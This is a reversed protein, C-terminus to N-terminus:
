IIRRELIQLLRRAELDRGIVPDFRGAKADAILDRTYAAIQTDGGGSSGGSAGGGSSASSGERAAAELLGVHPRFAGPGINFSALIEGAPGRIEQALAHLVHEIGVNPAKDRAAEREARALLDVLRSSLYALKGQSKPLRALQAEALQMVEGPDAGARRFVDGIGRERELLKVLLHLPSVEAHKREDALQQSGAVIQKADPTYSDLHQINDPKESM